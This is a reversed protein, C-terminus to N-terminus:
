KNCIVHVILPYSSANAKPNLQEHRAKEGVMYMKRAWLIRSIVQKVAV